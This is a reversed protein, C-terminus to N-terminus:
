CEANQKQKKREVRARNARFLRYSGAHPSSTSSHTSLSSCSALASQRTQHDNLKPWLVALKSLVSRSYWAGCETRTSDAFGSNIIFDHQRFRCLDRELAPILCKRGTFFFALFHKIQLASSGCSWFAVSRTSLPSTEVDSSSAGAQSAVLWYRGRGSGRRGGLDGADRMGMSTVKCGAM